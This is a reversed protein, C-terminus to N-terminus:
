NARQAATITIQRQKTARNFDALNINAQCLSHTKSSPPTVYYEVLVKYNNREAVPFLFNNLHGYFLTPSLAYLDTPLNYTTVTDRSGPFALVLGASGACPDFGIVYAEATIGRLPQPAAEKKQCGLLLQSTGLLLSSLSILLANKM